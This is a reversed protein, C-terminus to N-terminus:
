VTIQVTLTVTYINSDWGGCQERRKNGEKGPLLV